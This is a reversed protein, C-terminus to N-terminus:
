HMCDICGLMGLFGGEEAISVNQNTARLYEDEFLSVVSIDLRRMSEIATSEEICVYEVTIDAAVGNCLMYFAVTIKQLCSLGLKYAANRKQMFYDNHNEVAHMIRLFLPRSM